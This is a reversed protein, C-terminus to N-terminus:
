LDNDKIYSRSASLNQGRFQPTRLAICVGSRHAAEVTFKNRNYELGDYLEVRKVTNADEM